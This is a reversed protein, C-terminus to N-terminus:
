LRPQEQAHLMWEQVELAVDDDFDDDEFLYGWVEVQLEVAKQELFKIRAENRKWQWSMGTAVGAGFVLILAVVAIITATAM